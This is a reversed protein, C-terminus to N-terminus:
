QASTNFDVSQLVNLWLEVSLYLHLDDSCSNIKVIMTMVEIAVEWYGSRLWKGSCSSLARNGEVAMCHRRGGLM